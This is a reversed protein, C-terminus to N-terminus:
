TKFPIDRHGSYVHMYFTSCSIAATPSGSLDSWSSKIYMLTGLTLLFMLTARALLQQSCACRVVKGSEGCTGTGDEAWKVIWRGVVKERHDFTEAITEERPLLGNAREHEAEAPPLRFAEALEWTAFPRNAPVLFGADYVKTIRPRLLLTYTTLEVVETANVAPQQQADTAPLWRLTSVYPSGCWGVLATSVGSTSLAISALAVRAIVPLGSTTELVFLFPTMIISLSFSTLSFIKLRRFTKALPGNYVYEGSAVNSLPLSHPNSIPEACTDSAQPPASAADFRSASTLISRRTWPSLSAGKSIAGLTWTRSPTSYLRGQHFALRRFAPGFHSSRRLLFLM